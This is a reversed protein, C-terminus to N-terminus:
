PILLGSSWYTAHLSLLIVHLCSCFDTNIANEGTVQPTKLWRLQCAAAPRTRYRGDALCPHITRRQVYMETGPGFIAKIGKKKLYPIDEEPIIGGGILLVDSKEKALLAAVKSFYENHGGSLSSLGVVDVAEQIAASAIQEATQRLGTYIVEMGEDRLGLTLVKVGRDHGDLGMKALLIRIIKERKGQERKMTM